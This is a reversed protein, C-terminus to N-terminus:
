AKGQRSLKRGGVPVPLFSALGSVSPLEGYWRATILFARCSHTCEAERVALLLVDEFM